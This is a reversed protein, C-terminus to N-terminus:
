PVPEGRAHGSLPLRCRCAAVGPPDRRRSHPSSCGGCGSTPSARPPLLTPAVLSGTACLTDPAAERLGEERPESPVVTAAAEAEVIATRALRGGRGGRRRGGTGLARSQADEDGPTHRPGLLPPPRCTTLSRRPHRFSPKAFAAAVAGPPPPPEPETSGLGTRTRGTSRRPWTGTSRAEAGAGQPSSYAAAGAGESASVFSSGWGSWNGTWRAKEEGAQVTRDASGVRGKRSEGWVRGLDCGCGWHEGGERAREEAGENEAGGRDWGGPM